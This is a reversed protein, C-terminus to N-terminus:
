EYRVEYGSEAVERRLSSWLIFLLWGVANIIMGYSWIKQVMLALNLSQIPLQMNGNVIAQVFKDEVPTVTTWIVWVLTFGVMATIWAQIDVVGRNDM